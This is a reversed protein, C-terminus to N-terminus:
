IICSPRLKWSLRVRTVCETDIGRTWVYDIRSCSPRLASDIYHTYGPSASADPYCRRYEDVFGAQALADIPSPTVSSVAPLSAAQRLPLRDYVTRTENLDGLVIIQHMEVTWSLM